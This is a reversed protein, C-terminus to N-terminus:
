SKAGTAAAVIREFWKWPLLAKGIITKHTGRGLPYRLKLYKKDPLSSILDAVEQPDPATEGNHRSYDAIAQLRKAYSSHAPKSMSALGKSWISTRYAGPEVLVIRIGYPALEHRLSESFGEVAFKSAAYPAYGPFGVRGSISSMNVILGSHQRRMIPIVAKTVAILGFFNSEMQERWNEMPVDEVFGGYAVGANNILMHIGGNEAVVENIVSVITEDKTVDLCKLKIRETVGERSALSLLETGRELQRMTAVVLYGKKALSIATLMGIGSSAGTVLAVSSSQGHELSQTRFQSNTLTSM